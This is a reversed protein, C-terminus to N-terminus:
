GNKTFYLVKWQDSSQTIMGIEEFKIYSCSLSHLTKVKVKRYRTNIM